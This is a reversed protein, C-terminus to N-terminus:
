SGCHRIVEPYASFWLGERKGAAMSLGMATLLHIDNSMAVVNCHTTQQRSIRSCCINRPAATSESGTNNSMLSICCTSAM